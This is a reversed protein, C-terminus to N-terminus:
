ANLLRLVGSNIEENPPDFGTVYLAHNIGKKIVDYPAYHCISASIEEESTKLYQKCTEVDISNWARCALPRVDYISCNGEKLFGCKISLNEQRTKCRGTRLCFQRLSERTVELFAESGTDLLYDRIIVLEPETAVVKLRCCYDCGKKCAISIKDQEKGYVSNLLIQQLQKAELYFKKVTKILDPSITKKDKLLTVVVQQYVKPRIQQDVTKIVRETLKDSESYNVIVENMALDTIDSSWRKYEALNIGAKQCAQSVSDGQKVMFEIDLLKEAHKDSFVDDAM